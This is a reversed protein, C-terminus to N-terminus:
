HPTTFFHRKSSGVILAQYDGFSQIEKMLKVASNVIVSENEIYHDSIFIRMKYGTYRSIKCFVNKLISMALLVCREM